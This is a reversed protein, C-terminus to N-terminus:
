KVLLMKMTKDFNEAQLRYFYIGSTVKDNDANSGDWILQHSGAELHGVYLEKVMQGLVNYIDLRVTSGHPVDFSILTKINFPNPYNQNLQYTEPLEGLVEVNLKYADVTVIELDVLRLASSLNAAANDIEIDLTVLEGMAPGFENLGFDYIVGKIQDGTDNYDLVLDSVM